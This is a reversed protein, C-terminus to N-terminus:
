KNRDKDDEQQKKAFRYYNMGGACIGFTLFIFTLYPGSGLKFDLFVGIGLGIFPAFAVQFGITSAMIAQRITKKKDEKKMTNEHVHERPTSGCM